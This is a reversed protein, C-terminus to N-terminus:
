DVNLAAILITVDRWLVGRVMSSPSDTAATAGSSSAFFWQKESAPEVRPSLRTGASHIESFAGLNPQHKSPTGCEQSPTADARSRTVAGLAVASATTAEAESLSVPYSGDSM